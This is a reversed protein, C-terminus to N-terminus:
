AIVQGQKVRDGIDVRITKLYGAVKAHLDTEEYPNLEASFTADREIDSREVKVVPVPRAESKKADPTPEAQTTSILLALGVGGVIVAAGISLYRARLSM